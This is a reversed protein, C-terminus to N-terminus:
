LTPPSAKQETFWDDIAANIDTGYNKVTPPVTPGANEGGITPPAGPAPPDAAPPAGYKATFQTVYEKYALAARDMDGDATHVFPHFLDPEIEVQEKYKEVTDTIARDYAARDKDQKLEALLAKTEPDLSSADKVELETGGTADPVEVIDGSQLASYVKGAQEQGFLEETLALFTEGPRNILDDMLVKADALEAASQELRTVHPQVTERLFGDVAQRIEPDAFRTEL